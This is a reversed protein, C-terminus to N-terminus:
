SSAHIVSLLLPEKGKSRFLQNDKENLLLCFASACTHTHMYRHRNMKSDSRESHKIYMRDCWHTNGFVKRSGKVVRSAAGDSTFVVLLLALNSIM